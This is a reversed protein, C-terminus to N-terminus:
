KGKAASIYLQFAAEGAKLKYNVTRSATKGEGTPFTRVLTNGKIEYEDHGQYGEFRGGKKMDNEEVVPFTIMSLSKDSNSAIGIVNGYSGSGANLTIIYLEDFGNGDLDGTLVKGIPDVDTFTIGSAPDGAFSVSINSLSQGQPHSESVEFTKGTKTQYTSKITPASTDASAPQVTDMGKGADAAPQNNGCSALFALPILFLISNKMAITKVPKQQLCFYIVGPL